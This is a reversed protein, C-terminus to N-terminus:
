DTMLTSRNEVLTRVIMAEFEALFVDFSAMSNLAAFDFHFM